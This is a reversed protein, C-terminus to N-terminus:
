EGCAATWLPLCTHNANRENTQLFLRGTRRGEESNFHGGCPFPHCSLSFLNSCAVKSLSGIFEERLPCHGSSLVIPPNEHFPWSLHTNTIEVDWIYRFYM